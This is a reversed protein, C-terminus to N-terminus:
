PQHPEAVDSVGGSVAFKMADAPSTNELLKVKPRPVIYVVGSLAYSHPVYIAVYENMGFTHCDTQTMFGMRWVDPGDVNVLVPIDFKRKNGAFAELFDKVSSYILRIGPTSQLVRGFLDVIRGIVFSSSIWGVFGVLLITLVFGLGPVYVQTIGPFVPELINPLLHDIYLFLSFVAWITIIIPALIIIGQLFYQLFKKWDWTLKGTDSSNNM